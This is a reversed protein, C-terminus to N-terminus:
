SGWPMGVLDVVLLVPWLAWFLMGPYTMEAGFPAWAFDVAFAALTLLPLGVTVALLALTWAPSMPWWLAVTAWCAVFVFLAGCAVTVMRRQRTFAMAAALYLAFALIWLQLVM